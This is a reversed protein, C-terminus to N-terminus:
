SKFIFVSLIEPNLYKIAADKVHNINISDITEIITDLNEKEKFMFESKANFQMRSSMNELSIILNSKIQEKARSLETNTISKNVIKDLETHILNEIKSLNSTNTGAYIFFIGCDSYHQVTTYINYAIGHKERINLNLRSSMGDGLITSLCNMIYRNDSMIGPIKNTFIIHSQNFKKKKVILQKKYDQSEIINNERNNNPFSFSTKSLFDVTQQHSVAGATSVILNNPSYNNNFFNILHETGINKISKEDGLIPHGLGASGLTKEEAFDFILDEPEDQVSYYEELIVSKEKEVDKKLFVPNFVVDTMLELTKPFNNKLARAYYCTLEKSTYANTYAGISEFQVAIQKTNRNKTRKFSSHELFHATGFFGELDNRSGANVCIGLSFSKAGPVEDTVVTLGNDLKTKKYVSKFKDQNETNIYKKQKLM